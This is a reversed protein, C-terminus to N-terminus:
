YNCWDEKTDKFVKWGSEKLFNVTEMFSGVYTETYDCENKDCTIERCNEGIKEIM